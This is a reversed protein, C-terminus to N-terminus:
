TENTQAVGAFGEGEAESPARGLLGRCLHEPHCGMSLTM